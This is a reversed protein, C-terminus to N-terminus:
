GQQRQEWLRLIRYKGTKQMNKLFVSFVKCVASFKRLNYCDVFIGASM